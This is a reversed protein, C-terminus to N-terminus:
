PLSGLRVCVAGAAAGTPVPPALQLASDGCCSVPATGPAPFAARLGSPFPSPRMNAQRHSLFPLPRVWTDDLQRRSLFLPTFDVVGAATPLQLALGPIRFVPLTGALQWALADDGRLSLGQPLDEAATGPGEPHARVSGADELEGQREAGPSGQPQKAVADKSAAGTTAEVRPASDLQPPAAVQRAQQRSCQQAAGEQVGSCIM